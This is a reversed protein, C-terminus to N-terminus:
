ASRWFVVWITDGTILKFPFLQCGVGTHGDARICALNHAPALCSRSDSKGLSGVNDEREGGPDAAVVKHDFHCRM